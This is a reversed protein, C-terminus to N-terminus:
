FTVQIGGVITRMVSYNSQSAGSGHTSSGLGLSARPDLGKRASVVALNDASVYIRLASLGM